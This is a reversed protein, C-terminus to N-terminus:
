GRGIAKHEEALLDFLLRDFPFGDIYHCRRQRGILRFQNQELVRISPGNSEVTWANIAQLGLVKFGMTLIESM